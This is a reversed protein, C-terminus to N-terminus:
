DIDAATAKLENLMDEIAPLYKQVGVVARRHSRKTRQEFLAIIARGMETEPDASIHEELEDPVADVSLDLLNLFLLLNATHKASSAEVAGHIILKGLRRLEGRVAQKVLSASIEAQALPKTDQLGNLALYELARSFNLGHIAAYQQITSVTNRHLWVHKDIRQAM